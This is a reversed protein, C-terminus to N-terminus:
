SHENRRGVAAWAGYFALLALAILIVNPGQSYWAGWDPSTAKYCLGFTIEAVLFSIVGWRLLVFMMFASVGVNIALGELSSEGNAFSWFIVAVTLSLPLNKIWKRILILAMVLIFYFTLLLAQDLVQGLAVRQGNLLSMDISMPNAVQGTIMEKLKFFVPSELLFILGGFILGVLVSQGILPDLFNAKRRSLLRSSSVFMTPWVQRGTPEAAGYLCWSTLGVFCAGVIITWIDDSWNRTVMAHSYLANAVIFLLFNLGGFRVGGRQDARGKKINRASMIAAFMVVLLIIVPQLSDLIANLFTYPQVTPTTGLSLLGATTAVNFLIVKGEYSGADVRLEIDPRDAHTRRRCIDARHDLSRFLV